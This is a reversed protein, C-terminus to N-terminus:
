GWAVWALGAVAVGLMVCHCCWRLRRAHKPNRRRVPIDIANSAALRVADIGPDDSTRVGSLM